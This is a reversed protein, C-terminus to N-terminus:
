AASLDQPRFKGITGDKGALKVQVWTISGQKKVSLVVGLRSPKGGMAKLQKAPIRVRVRKGERALVDSIKM